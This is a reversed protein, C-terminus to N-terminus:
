PPVGNQQGRMNAGNDYGQGRMDDLLIGFKKLSELLVNTM